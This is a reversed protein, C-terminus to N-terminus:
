FKGLLEDGGGEDDGERTWPPCGKGRGPGQRFCDHGCDKGYGTGRPTVKVMVMAGGMGRVRVRAM